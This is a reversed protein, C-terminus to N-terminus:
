WAGGGSYDFLTGWKTTGDPNSAILVDGDDGKGSGDAM